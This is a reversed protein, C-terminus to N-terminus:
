ETWVITGIPLLSYLHVIDANYHRICGHSAWKGISSDDDTGHLAYFPGWSGYLDNLRLFWPGFQGSTFEKSVIKWKSKPTACYYSEGTSPNYCTEHAGTAVARSEIVEGTRCDPDGKWIQESNSNVNVVVYLENKSCSGITPAPKPKVSVAYTKKQAAAKAEAEQRALEEAHKKEEAAKQEAEIKKAIIEKKSAININVQSSMLLNNAEVLKGKVLLNRIDNTLTEDKKEVASAFLKQQYNALNKYAFNSYFYIALLYSTALIFVILYKFYKNAKQFIM